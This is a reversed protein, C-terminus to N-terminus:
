KPPPVGEKKSVDSIFLIISEIELFNLIEVLGSIVKSAFGSSKDLM